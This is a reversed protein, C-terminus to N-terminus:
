SKIEYIVGGILIVGYGMLMIITAIKDRMIILKLFIFQVIIMM